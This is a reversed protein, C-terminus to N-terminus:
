PEAGDTPWDPNPTTEGTTTDFSFWRGAGIDAEAQRMRENFGPTSELDSWVRAAIYRRVPGRNLLRAVTRHRQLFRITRYPPSM